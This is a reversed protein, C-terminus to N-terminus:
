DEPLSKFFGELNRHKSGNERFLIIAKNKKYQKKKSRKAIRKYKVLKKHEQNYKVWYKKNEAYHKRNYEKKCEKCMKELGDRYITNKYFEFLPKFEHCFSCEKGQWNQENNHEEEIVM